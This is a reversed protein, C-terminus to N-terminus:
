KVMQKLEIDNIVQNFAKGLQQNFDRSLIALDPSFPGNTDRGVRYNKQYSERGNFLTAQLEIQTKADYSLMGQDVDVLAKKITITLQNESQSDIRLNQKQYSSNLANNLLVSLREQSNFFQTPKDSEKIQVIHANARQDIVTLSVAKNMYQINTPTQNSLEPSVVLYTPKSSCAMLSLTSFLLVFNTLKM